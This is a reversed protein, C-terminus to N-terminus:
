ISQTEEEEVQSHYSFIIHCNGCVATETGQWITFKNQNSCEPCTIATM